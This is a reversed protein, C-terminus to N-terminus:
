AVQLKEAVPLRAKRGWNGEAAKGVTIIMVPLEGDKLGFEKAVAAPDFGVMPCSALGKATAALMLTMGALSASRIAEDHQIQTNSAYMGNAAGVWGDYAAQDIYGADLLPQVIRPLQKYGQSDGVMIFTAAAAGVKAQGYAAAQLKAKGEASTVAVTRWNQQNFSTPAENAIEVLEAIEEATMVHTSDFNNASTRAKITTIVDTMKQEM